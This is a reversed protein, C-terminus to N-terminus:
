VKVDWSTPWILGGFHALGLQWFCIPVVALAVLTFRWNIYFMVGIMGTLTLIDVLISLLGSVIFTQVSDIDSTVRSILDGTQTHEHYALSLRQVHAYFARRLDHTVWQGVSTTICKEAYTCVADLLAILGVSICAFLLIQQPETGVTRRIFAFLWGHSDRHAIVNDLVIKLPWPELLDAVSEGAIALLGLWLLKYHPRLLQLITIGRPVRYSEPVM